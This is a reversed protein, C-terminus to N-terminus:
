LDKNLMSVTARAVDETMYLREPAQFTDNVTFCTYRDTRTNLVIFWNSEYPDYAKIGGCDIIVDELEHPTIIKM